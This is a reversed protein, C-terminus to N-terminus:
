AYFDTILKLLNSLVECTQLLEGERGGQMKWTQVDDMATEFKQRAEPNRDTMERYISRLERCLNAAHRDGDPINESNNYDWRSAFDLLDKAVNPNRGLWATWLPGNPGGLQSFKGAIGNFTRPSVAEAVQRSALSSAWLGGEFTGIGVELGLETYDTHHVKLGSFTLSEKGEEGTKVFNFELSTGIAKQYNLELGLANGNVQRSEGFEKIKKDSLERVALTITDKLVVRDFADRGLKGATFHGGEIGDLIGEVINDVVSLDSVACRVTLSGPKAYPPGGKVPEGDKTEGFTRSFNLELRPSLTKKRANPIESKSLMAMSSVSGQLVWSSKKKKSSVFLTDKSAAHTIRFGQNEYIAEDLREVDHAVDAPLETVGDAKLLERYYSEVAAAERAVSVLFKTALTSQCTRTFFARLREKVGLTIGRNKLHRAFSVSDEQDGSGSVHSHMHQVRLAARSFDSLEERLAKLRDRLLNKAQNKAQASGTAACAKFEGLFGEARQSPDNRVIQSLPTFKRSTTSKRSIKADLTVSLGTKKFVSAKTKDASFKVAGRGEASNTRSYDRLRENMRGTLFMDTKDLIGFHELVGRFAQNDALYTLNKTNSGKCLASVLGKQTILASAIRGVDDSLSDLSPYSYSKVTKATVNGEIKAVAVGASAKGYVYGGISLEKAFTARGDQGVLIQMGASVKVGLGIKGAEGLKGGLNLALSVNYLGPQVLGGETKPLMGIAQEMQRRADAECGLRETIATCIGLERAAARGSKQIFGALREPSCEHLGSRVLSALENGLAPDLTAANERLFAHVEALYAETADFRGGAVNLKSATKEFSKFGDHMRAFSRSIATEIPEDGERVPKVVMPLDIGHRSLFDRHEARAKEALVKLRDFLGRFQAGNPGSLKAAIARHIKGWGLEVMERRIAATTRAAMQFMSRADKVDVASENVFAEVERAELRGDNVLGVLTQAAALLKPGTVDRGVFADLEDVVREDAEVEDKARAEIREAKWAVADSNLLRVAVLTMTADADPLKGVLAGSREKLQAVFADLGGLGLTRATADARTREDATVEDSARPAVADKAGGGEPPQVARAIADTYIRGGPVTPYSPVPALQGADQPAETKSPPAVYNSKQGLDIIRDLSNTKAFGTILPPM